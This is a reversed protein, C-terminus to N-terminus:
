QKINSRMVTSAAEIAENESKEKSLESYAAIEALKFIQNYLAHFVSDIPTNKYKIFGTQESAKQTAEKAKKWLETKNM